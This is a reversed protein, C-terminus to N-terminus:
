TFFIERVLRFSDDDVASNAQLQLQEDKEETKADVMVPSHDQVAGSRQGKPEPHRSSSDYPVTELETIDLDTESVYTLEHEDSIDSSEENLIKTAPKSTVKEAALIKKRKVTKVEDKHEVQTCFSM